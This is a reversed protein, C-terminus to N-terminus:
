GVFSRKGIDHFPLNSDGSSFRELPLGALSKLVLEPPVGQERDREGHNGGRYAGANVHAEDPAGRLWLSDPKEEVIHVAVHRGLSSAIYPTNV